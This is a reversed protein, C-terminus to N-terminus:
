CSESHDTVARHYVCETGAPAPASSPSVSGMELRSLKYPRMRLIARKASSRVKGRRIARKVPSRNMAAMAVRRPGSRTPVKRGIM